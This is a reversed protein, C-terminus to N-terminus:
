KLFANPYMSKNLKILEELSSNPLGIRGYVRRLEFIDRALVERANSLGRTNRSVIGLSSRRTHGIRPVLISPATKYNYDPIFRKMLAKQGVHHADLGKEIGRIKNYPGVKWIKSAMKAEGGAGPELLAFLIIGAFYGFRQGETVETVKLNTNRTIDFSSQILGKAIGTGTDKLDKKFGESTFIRKYYNYYDLFTKCDPCNDSQNSSDSNGSNGSSDRLAIFVNKADEGTFTWGNENQVADAGSPDAWFVPNNDFATYTSMSHHVVPDISNWRAIAPDYRRLPMEYLNLGLSEELETGNYKFKQATSNGLSSVNNNYGKHKLGFPYYNSEEIIESSATIVGDKNTDTYTLRINGLHDKYQYVYDFSSIVTSGSAIVPKIYGESHNFFELSWSFGNNGGPLGNSSVGSYIYNGAYQTVKTQNFDSVVKSLKVGSADYVYNITGGSGNSFTIETPLNLHNYTISGIDKNKDSIMNGNVDYTYDLKNSKDKFGYNDNGNDVVSKLKNGSDYYYHLNDMTGFSTAGANIHGKRILNLINGNKDYTIGSVNYNGGADSVAGTIRNLADYRYSVCKKKNRYRKKVCVGLFM